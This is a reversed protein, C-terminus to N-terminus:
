FILEFVHGKKKRKKEGKNERWNRSYLHWMLSLYCKYSILKHMSEYGFDPFYQSNSKTHVDFSIAFYSKILYYSFTYFSSFIGRLLYSSFLCVQSDLAYSGKMDDDSMLNKGLGPNQVAESSSDEPLANQQLEDGKSQSAEAESIYFNLMSIKKIDRLM